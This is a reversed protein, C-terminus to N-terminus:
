VVGNDTIVWTFNDIIYQRAKAGESGTRVTSSGGHFPVNNKLFWDVLPLQTSVNWRLIGTWFAEYNDQNWTTVDKAFNSANTVSRWDMYGIDDNFSTGEIFGSLNMVNASNFLPIRTVLPALRFVNDFSNSTINMLDTATVVMNVCNTFMSSGSTYRFQGCNKFDLFKVGDETASMQLFGSGKFRLTYIGPTTYIFILRVDTNEIIDTIYTLPSGDGKDATLNGGSTRFRFYVTDTGNSFASTLRTDVQMEFWENVGFVSCAGNGGSAVEFPTIGDSDIITAPPCSSTGKRFIRIVDGM